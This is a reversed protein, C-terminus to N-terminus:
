GGGGPGGGPGGRGRQPPAGFNHVIRLNVDDLQNTLTSITHFNQTLGPQNPLPILSLLRASAPDIRSAPIQNGAFPQHTSPDVITRGIAALNGAREDVIPVTSYQDYPNRSHNGTYNLFFFTRPG